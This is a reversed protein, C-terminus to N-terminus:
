VAGLALCNCFINKPKLEEALLESLGAMAAKSSSYASLGPFKSSGQVGGISSISVIHSRRKKGMFPLLGQILLFPAFVNISYISSLEGASIKQFPKNILAGANNILVDVQKRSQKVITTIDRLTSQKTLDGSVILINPSTKQLRKLAAHNRAVALITNEDDVALQKVIEFGIGKSAGTVVIFM